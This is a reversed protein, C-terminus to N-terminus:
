RSVLRHTLLLLILGAAPLGGILVLTWIYLMGPALSKAVALVIMLGFAAFASVNAMNNFRTLLLTKGDERVGRSVYGRLELLFLGYSGGVMASCVLFLSFSPKIGAVLGGASLMLVLAPAGLAVSGVSRAKGSPRRLVGLTANVVAAAVFVAVIARGGRLEPQSMQLLDSLLYIMNAAFLYLAVYVSIAYAFLLRDARDLPESVACSAVALKVCASRFLSIAGVCAIVGLVVLVPLVIGQEGFFATFFAPASVMGLLRAINGIVDNFPRDTARVRAVAAHDIQNLLLNDAFQLLCILAIYPTMVSVSVVGLSAVLSLALGAVIAAQSLPRRKSVAVGALAAVTSLFLTVALLLVRQEPYYHRFFLQPLVNASGSMLFSLFFLSAAGLLLTTRSASSPVGQPQMFTM